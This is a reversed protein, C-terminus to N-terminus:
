TSTPASRVNVTYEQGVYRMDASRAFAHRRGRHGRLGAARDGEAQLEVLVESVVSARSSPWRGTSARVVDHRIDTQLMGWASFTGPSWPIIVEGIELEQALWVAHMPGAGGFAVLSFDRPDIGQKVTITRMADAMNANVIALMGEAFATDELGLQAPSRACRREGGGGRRAADARRPLLQPDLRGLFLNADTVTPETGGRGYCAPGPMAGASQPGVRLGGAELWALSGGGAGITHIDVLPM